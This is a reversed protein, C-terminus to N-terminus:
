LREQMGEREGEMGAEGRGRGTHEKNDTEEEDGYDDVKKVKTTERSEKRGVKTSLVVDSPQCSAIDEYM